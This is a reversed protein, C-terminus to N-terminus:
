LALEFTEASANPDTLSSTSDLAAFRRCSTEELPSQPVPPPLVPLPLLSEQLRNLPPPLLPRHREIDVTEQAEGLDIEVGVARLSRESSRVERESTQSAAKYPPFMDVLGWRSRFTTRIPHRCIALGGLVM